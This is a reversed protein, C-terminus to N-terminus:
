FNRGIMTASLPLPFELIYGIQGFFSQIRWQIQKMM